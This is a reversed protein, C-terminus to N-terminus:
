IRKNKMKLLMELWKECPKQKGLIDLYQWQYEALERIGGYLKLVEEHRTMEILLRHSKSRRSYHLPIIYLRAMWM